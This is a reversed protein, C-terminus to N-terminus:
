GEQKSNRNQRQEERIIRNWKKEWEVPNYKSREKRYQVKVKRDNRGGM